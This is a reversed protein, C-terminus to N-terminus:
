KRGTQRQIREYEAQAAKRTADDPYRRPNFQQNQRAQQEADRRAQDINNAM